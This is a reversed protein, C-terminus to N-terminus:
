TRSRKNQDLSDKHAQALRKAEKLTKAEGVIIGEVNEKPNVSVVYEVTWLSSETKYIIYEDSISVKPFETTWKIRPM